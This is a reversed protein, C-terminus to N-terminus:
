KAGFVNNLDEEATTEEQAKEEEPKEVDKFEELQGLADNRQKVVKELKKTLNCNPYDVGEVDASLFKIGFELADNWNIGERKALEWTNTDVTTTITFKPTKGWQKNNELTGNQAEEMEM